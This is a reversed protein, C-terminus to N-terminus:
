AKVVLKHLFTKTKSPLLSLRPNDELLVNAFYIFWSFYPYTFFVTYLNYTWTLTAKAVAAIWKRSVLGESMKGRYVALCLAGRGDKVGAM